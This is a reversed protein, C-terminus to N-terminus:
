SLLETVHSPKLLVTDMGAEMAKVIQETKANVNDGVISNRAKDPGSLPWSEM